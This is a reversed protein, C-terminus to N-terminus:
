IVIFGVTASILSFWFSIRSQALGQAHHESLLLFQKETPNASERKQLQELSIVLKKALRVQEEDVVQQYIPLFFKLFVIAFLTILVAAIVVTISTATLSELM